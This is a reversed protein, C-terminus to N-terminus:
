CSDDYDTLVMEDLTNGNCNCDWVCKYQCYDFGGEGISGISPHHHFELLDDTALGEKKVVSSMKSPPVSHRHNVNTQVFRKVKM